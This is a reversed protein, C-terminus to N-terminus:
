AVVGTNVTRLVFAWKASKRIQSESDYGFGKDGWSGWSNAYKAIRNGRRDKTPRVYCVSHGERGVVVPHQRCLASLLGEVTRVVHFEAGKFKAATNEWDRPFRKHFGTNPMVKDGFRKRNAENDLPLIGRSRMEKLGDSVMAGSSPSRGIRKYLSIASLHVVSDIGRQLAQNIEHAQACANAVCSGENGQSYIRSVLRDAGGGESGMLEIAADIERLSLTEISDEYAAFREFCPAGLDGFVYKPQQSFDVDLYKDDIM